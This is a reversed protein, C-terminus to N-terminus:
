SIGKVQSPPVFPPPAFSVVVVVVVVLEIYQMGNNQSVTEVMPNGTYTNMSLDNLRKSMRQDTELLQQKRLNREMFKMYKQVLFLVKQPGLPLVEM